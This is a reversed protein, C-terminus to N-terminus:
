KCFGQKFEALSLTFDKLDDILDSLKTCLAARYIDFSVEDKNDEQKNCSTKCGKCNCSHEPKFEKVVVEVEEDDEDDDEEFDEVILPISCFCSGTKGACEGVLSLSGFEFDPIEQSDFSQTVRAILESTSAEPASWVHTFQTGDSERWNLEVSKLTGRFSNSRVVDTIIEAVAKGFKM